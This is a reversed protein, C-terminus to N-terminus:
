DPALQRAREVGREYIARIRDEFDEQRRERRLWDRLAEVKRLAGSRDAMIAALAAEYGAPDEPPSVPYGTLDTIVEGIGGVKSAVIPLGLAAMELLVFPFGDAASTYLFADFDQDVLDALSGLPGRYDVNPLARLGRVYEVDANVVSVGYVVFELGMAATRRAIEILLDVRKDQDLRSFWLVKGGTAKRSGRAAAGAPHLEEFPAPCFSLMEGEFAFEESFIRQMERNDSVILDISEVASPITTVAFGAHGFLTAGPSFASVVRFCHLEGAPGLDDLAAVGPHNNLTWFLYPRLEIILRQLTHVQFRYEIGLRELLRGLEVVVVGPAIESYDAEETRLRLLVVPQDLPAVKRLANRYKVVMREAGGFRFFPSVIIAAPRPGIRALLLLLLLGERSAPNPFFLSLSQMTYDDPYCRRDVARQARWDRDLWEPPRYGFISRNSGRTPLKALEPDIPATIQRYLTDIREIPDQVGTSERGASPSLLDLYADLNWRHANSRDFLPSRMVHIGPATGYSSRSARRRYYYATEPVYQHVIGSAISAAAWAWDEAGLGIDRRTTPFRLERFLETPGFANNCFFWTQSLELPSFDEQDSEIQHRVWNEDHFGVMVETHLVTRENGLQSYLAHARHLWFSSMLDDGDLFAIFRSSSNNVAYNRCESLDAYDVIRIDTRAFTHGNAIRLTDPKPNYLVILLQVLLGHGEAERCAAEASRLSHVFLSGEAHGHLSLTIDYM